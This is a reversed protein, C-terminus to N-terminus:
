LLTLFPQNRCAVVLGESNEWAEIKIIGGGKSKPLTYREDVVKLFFQKKKVM